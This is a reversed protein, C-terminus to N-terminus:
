TPFIISMIIGPETLVTCGVKGAAGKRRIIPIEVKDAEPGVEIAEHKFALIGPDDDDIITVEHEIKKTKKSIISM